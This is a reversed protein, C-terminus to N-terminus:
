SLNELENDIEIAADELAQRVSLGNKLVSDLARQGIQEVLEFGVIKSGWPARCCPVLEQFGHSIRVDEALERKGGSVKEREVDIRASVAIGSSNYTKQVNFSSFYKIFEWAWEPHRCNAGIANGSEYMVTVSQPLHTPLPLIEVNAMDFGPTSKLTILNWHGVVKLAARQTAFYDVGTSAIESLEPAVKHKTMLDALFQITETAKDSDFTGKAKSNEGLVDAGNNWLFMIWGPMWNAFEFGYVHDTTSMKCCNLFEDFTWGQSKIKDIDGRFLKRNCYVAMPTFDTPIAFIQSERKAIGLVEPFFASLDFGDKQIMPGFDLLARRNIFAASSSADLALVDPMSGSVFDLLMKSVYDQSGPTGEVKLQIGSKKEFDRYIRQVLQFLESDDGAGGWNALRLSKSAYRSSQCGALGFFPASM